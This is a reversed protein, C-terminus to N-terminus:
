LRSHRSDMRYSARSHSIQVKILSTFICRSKSIYCNYKCPETKECFWSAYGVM